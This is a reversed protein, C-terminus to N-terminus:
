KPLLKWVNETSIWEESAEYGKAAQFHVRFKGSKNDTECVEGDFVGMGKFTVSVLAGLAPLPTQQAAAAM